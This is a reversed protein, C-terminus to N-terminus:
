QKDAQNVDAGLEIIKEIENLKKMKILSILPLEGKRSMLNLQKKGAHGLLIEVFKMKMQKVCQLM